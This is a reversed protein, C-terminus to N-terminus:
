RAASQCIMSQSTIKGERLYLFYDEVIDDFDDYISHRYVDYRERLQHELRQHLLYYMAEDRKDNQQLIIDVFDSVPIGVFPNTQVTM